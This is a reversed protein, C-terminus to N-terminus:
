NTEGKLEGDSAQYAGPKMVRLELWKGDLEIGYQYFDDYEDLLEMDTDIVPPHDSNTPKNWVHLHLVPATM